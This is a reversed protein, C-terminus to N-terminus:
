MKAVSIAYNGTSVTGGAQSGADFVVVYWKGATGPTSVSNAVNVPQTPEIVSSQVENNTYDFDSGDALAPAILATFGTKPDRNISIQVNDTAGLTIAYADTQGAASLMGSIICPGPICSATEDPATAPTGHATAPATIVNSVPTLTPTLTYSYGAGGGFSGDLLIAYLTTTATLPFLDTAPSNGFLGPGGVDDLLQDSLGDAGYVRMRPVIPATADSTTSLSVLVAGTTALKYVNTSFFTAIADDKATGATLDTPTRATVTLAAPDSLFTLGASGDLAPNALTVQLPGTPALPDFLVAASLDSSTQDLAQLVVSGKDLYQVNADLANATDRNHIAVGALNGQQAQGLPQGMIQAISADLPPEVDFAKSATLMAGGAMFTVDRPGIVATAAIQVTAIASDPDVVQVNMVMVNAGFDFTPPTKSSFGLGEGAVTVDLTRGLLGLGPTVLGATPAAAGSGPPGAPGPAGPGGAAGAPGTAGQSGTCAMAGVVVCGLWGLANRM